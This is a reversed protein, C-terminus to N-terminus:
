ISRTFVFDLWARIGFSVLDVFFVSVCVLVTWSKFFRPGMKTVERPNVVCYCYLCSLLLIRLHEVGIILSGCVLIVVCYCFCFHCLLTEPKSVWFWSHVCCCYYSLIISLKICLACVSHVM